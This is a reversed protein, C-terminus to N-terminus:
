KPSKGGYLANAGAVKVRQIFSQEKEEETTKEAAKGGREERLAASTSLCRHGKSMFGVSISRRLLLATSEMTKLRFLLSSPYTTNGGIREGKQLTTRESIERDRSSAFFTNDFSLHLSLSLAHSLAKVFM